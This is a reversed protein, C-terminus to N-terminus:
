AVKDVNQATPTGIEFILAGNYRAQVNNLSLTGDANTTFLPGSLDFMNELNGQGPLYGALGENNKIYSDLISDAKKVADADTTDPTFKKIQDYASQWVQERMKQAGGTNFDKVWANHSALGAKLEDLKQFAFSRAAEVSGFGKYKEPTPASYTSSATGTAYDIKILGKADEAASGMASSAEAFAIGFEEMLKKTGPSLKITERNIEITSNISGSQAEYALLEKARKLIARQNDAQYSTRDQGFAYRQPPPASALVNSSAATVSM